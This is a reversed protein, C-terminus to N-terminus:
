RLCEMSRAEEAKPDNAPGVIEDNIMEPGSPQGWNEERPKRVPAPTYGGGGGLCM